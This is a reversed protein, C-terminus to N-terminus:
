MSSSELGVPKSTIQKHTKNLEIISSSVVTAGTDIHGHTHRNAVSKSFM